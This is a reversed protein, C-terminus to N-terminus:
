VTPGAVRISVDICVQVRRGEALDAAAAAIEGSGRHFASPGMGAVDAIQPGSLELSGTVRREGLVTFRGALTQALREDKDGDVSLLGLPEVLEALHGPNPTVIIWRGEPRLIRQFQAANRPAFVSLVVDAFGDRLPLPRWLDAVAAVARPHCRAAARACYKSLDVGIGRSAPVADLSRALYYGTGCGADVILPPSDPTRSDPVCSGPINSAPIRSAPIATAVAEAVAAAILDYGGADIVRRRAAVM